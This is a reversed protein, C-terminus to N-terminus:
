QDRRRINESWALKGNVELSNRLGNIEPVDEDTRLM